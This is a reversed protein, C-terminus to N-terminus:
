SDQGELRYIGDDDPDVQAVADGGRDYAGDACLGVRFAGTDDVDQEVQTFGHQYKGCDANEMLAM